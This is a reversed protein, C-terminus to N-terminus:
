LFESKVKRTVPELSRSCRLDLRNSPCAQHIGVAQPRAELLSGLGIRRCFRLWEREIARSFIFEKMDCIFVIKALSLPAVPPQPRKSSRM